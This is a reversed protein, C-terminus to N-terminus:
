QKKGNFILPNDSMVQYLTMSMERAIDEESPKPSDKDGFRYSLGNVFMCAHCVEHLFSQQIKQLPKDPDLYILQKNNNCCAFVEAEDAVEESYIVQYRFPGIKVIFNKKPLTM